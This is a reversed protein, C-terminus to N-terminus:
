LSQIAFINYNNCSWHPTNSVMKKQPNPNHSGQQINYYQKSFFNPSAEKSIQDNSKGNLDAKIQHGVKNNQLIHFSTFGIKNPQWLDMSPFVASKAQTCSDFLHIKKWKWTLNTKKLTYTAPM